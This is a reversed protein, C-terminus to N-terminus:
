PYTKGKDKLCFRVEVLEFRRTYNCWLDIYRVRIQPRDTQTAHVLGLINETSDPYNCM